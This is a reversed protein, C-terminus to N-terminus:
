PYNLEKAKLTKMHKIHHVHLRLKTTPGTAAPVIQSKSLLEVMAEEADWGLFQCGM